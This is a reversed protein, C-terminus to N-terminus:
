EGLQGSDDFLLNKLQLRQSTMFDNVTRADERQNAFLFVIDERESQAAQLVPMERRCPPCWTAWLNIVVPRGKFDALRVTEGTADRLTIDPLQASQEHTSLGLSAVLWFLLGSGLGARLPQRLHPKRWGQWIGGLLVAVIGVWVLFGGDRIDLAQFPADRYQAWYAIVFGLRAAMLGLLFLGCLSSEPNNGSRRGMLWGVLTALGLAVLLLLHNIALAFPRIAVSLM